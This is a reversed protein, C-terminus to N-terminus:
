KTQYIGLFSTKEDWLGFDNDTIFAIDGNEILAIGEIKSAYDFGEKAVDVILTKIAHNTKKFNSDLSILQATADKGKMLLPLLNTANKLDIQIIKHVAKSGYESNQEILIFKKDKLHQIDGIKDVQADDLLMSYVGTVTDTETNLAFILIQKQVDSNQISYDKPYKFPSQVVAYVMNGTCAIGEFGRNPTRLNLIEPLAQNTLDDSKILKTKPIWRAILKGNFDFKLISPRYEEAGLYGDGTQCTGELDAGYPDYAIKNEKADTPVEDMEPSQPLGSVDLSTRQTINIKRTAPDLEFFVLEPHFNPFLFPRLFKGDPLKKGDFNAGRDTNTMFMLKGNESNKGTFSLGSFGGLLVKENPFLLPPNEFKYVKLKGTPKKVATSCSYNFILILAFFFKM